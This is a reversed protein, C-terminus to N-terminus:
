IAAAMTARDGDNCLTFVEEFQDIVVLLPTTTTDGLMQSLRAPNARLASAEGARDMYEGANSAAVWAITCTPTAAHSSM